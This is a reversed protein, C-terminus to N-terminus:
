WDISIAATVATRDTLRQELHRLWTLEASSESALYAHMRARETATALDQKLKEINVQM